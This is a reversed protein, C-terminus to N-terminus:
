LEYWRGAFHLGRASLRRRQPSNRPIAVKGSAVWVYKAPLERLRPASSDLWGKLWSLKDLVDRVHRSSAPHVEIWVVSEGPSGPIGIGYDWRREQSHSGSLAEDLNVSGCVHRAEGCCVRNRDTRRLAQLGRRYADELGPTMRVANKFSMPGRM